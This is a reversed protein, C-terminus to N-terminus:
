LGVIKKLAGDFKRYNVKVGDDLDIDIQRGAMPFIVDREWAELEMLTKRIKDMEKMSKAKEAKSASGSAEVRELHEMRSTLKSHYDRLYDNLFVSVTDPQYRHMYILCRFSKKPSEFMWYIPRKKYRKVHDDYFDALFYKRVSKGISKELFVLNEDFHAEGFTVKLFKHFRETIDDTFWDEELIPIVNDDDPTFSLNEPTLPYPDTNPPCHGTTPSSHKSEKAENDSPETVKRIYNSLSDGQNALILGPKDLSYRGFMCGVAYSIFEKMTDALLLTELEADTKNNGYRYHPNCTLTIENLPVEPTLEDQLGYAEIFIRNNQEELHKM